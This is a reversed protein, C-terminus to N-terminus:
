HDRFIAVCATHGHVFSEDGVPGIEGNAFFGATPVASDSGPEFPTGPKSLEEGPFQAFARAVAQADHSSKGFLRKGRGNCTVLMVGKPKDYLKQADLLLALDEHATVADRAHLRITQGVRVVDAVAIAGREQNVGVVNRILFDGRGFRGKYENIVRGVFLGGSLMPRAKEGLEHVAEQIADIAPRGGLEFVLNGKAKTVVFNPGFPRCGQSVVADVRIPGRLSVGVAGSKMVRDNLILANGGASNSSSAMGGFLVGRAPAEGNGHRAKNLTPLLKILPVSFPDSFLCTARLDDAAGVVSAMRALVEPDDSPMPLEDTTFTVTTVGPMKAALISIGPSQELEMAGGIAACTSVGVLSGPGLKGRVTASIQAAKDTHHGSFFLFAIDVGSAPDGFADFAELCQESASEAAHQTDANNSVGAVM